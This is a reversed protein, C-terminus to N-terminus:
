KRGQYELGKFDLVHLTSSLAAYLHTTNFRLCYVPSSTKPSSLSFTQLCRTQRKDWLRVVGYYSSGSAIMYNNDSQICYLASDCPEEWEMVCKRTSARIDWYRIYTDYGCSLLTSPTEYFVDLIGAGRRFDMGLCSLLQCSEVDWMRLPAEHGCCATGTVFSSVSPSIAVSWVRDVTPITHLLEVVVDSSISWVRATRDRSGSVLVRGRCDICNVEENHALFQVIFPERRHHMIIKGDGGASILHSETLIFKCVDEQHGAFVEMPRRQVGRGDPRLQYMRIDAAQSLYLKNDELQIWPLLNYKWKLIVEKKCWGKRWNQSVKVRDKLPILPALDLGQKTLGTNICEKAIRRWVADRGTFCYLKRCVQSLCSLAQCDLYGLILYLIDEPLQFLLLM